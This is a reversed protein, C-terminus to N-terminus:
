YDVKRQKISLFKSAGSSQVSDGKCGNKKRNHVRRLRGFLDEGELHDHIVSNRIAKKKLNLGGKSLGM